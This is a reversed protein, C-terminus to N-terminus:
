FYGVYVTALMCAFPTGMATGRLQIWKTDGFEFINCNTITKITELLEELPLNKTESKFETFMKRLITIAHTLEIYTYMSKADAKFWRTNAPIKGMRTTEEIVQNTDRLFSPVMHINQQMVYDALKSLGFFRTGM